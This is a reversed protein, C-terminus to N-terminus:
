ARGMSFLAKGFEASFLKLELHAPIGDLEWAIDDEFGTARAARKAQLVWARILWVFFASTMFMIGAFLQTGLYGGGGSSVM